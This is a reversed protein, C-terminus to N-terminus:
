RKRAGHLYHDHNGALDSPLDVAQGTVDKFVEAWTPSQELPEIKVRTGEPLTGGNDLVVVGNKVKGQYEM